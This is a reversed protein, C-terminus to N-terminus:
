KCEARVPDGQNRHGTKCCQLLVTGCQLQTQNARERIFGEEGEGRDTLTRSCSSPPSQRLAPHTSIRTDRPPFPAATIPGDPQFALRHQGTIHQCSAQGAGREAGPGAEERGLSLVRLFANAKLPRGAHERQPWCFRCRRKPSTGPEGKIPPPGGPTLVERHAPQGDGATRRRWKGCGCVSLGPAGAASVAPM